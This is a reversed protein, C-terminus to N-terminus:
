EESPPSQPGIAPERLYMPQVHAPHFTTGARLGAQLRRWALEALVTARRMRAAPAAVTWGASTLESLTAADLLDVEGCLVGTQGSGVLMVLLERRGYLRPARQERWLSAPGHYMALAWQNRGAHHLAAILAGTGAQAYAEIELRGVGVLPLPKVGPQKGTAPLALALAGAAAMGARIGGYAGPGVDVFIATLADREVGAARVVQDIVPLLSPTHRRGTPWTMEALPQGHDSVAVSATMGVTDIALEM